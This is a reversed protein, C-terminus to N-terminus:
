RITFFWSTTRVNGAADTAVIRVTKKGKPLRPSNYVLRDMAASYSYRAPSVLRGNVYLKINAKQLQTLNDRVVARISPTTDTTFSRNRPSMGTVTPKVTDVTWGRVAPTADVNGAADKARVRFTHFGNAVSYTRPSACATFAAGDLSCEFTSGAESSSFTFSASTSRVTGAPGSTVTTQPPVDDPQWDPEVDNAANAHLVRQNTGDANMAYINRDTSGSAVGVYAISSSDPSWAPMVASTLSNNSVNTKGGGSPDMTWINPVGSANPAFTHVYAIKTGGPSWTPDDDHGQYPPNDTTNPTINTQGSGDANMVYVNRDTDNFPAPRRESVFAIRDGTPSWAPQTDPFTNNTIQTRGSGDANMTWIELDTQGDVDSSSAVFAIKTGDRSWSPDSEVVRTNTLRQAGTGNPNMGNASMVYIDNGPGRFAIRTGDPSFAPEGSGGTPFTLRTVGTGDPKMAYIEAGGTDRNSVFAIKGNKAAPFAAGAPQAVILAALCLAVATALAIAVPLKRKDTKGM